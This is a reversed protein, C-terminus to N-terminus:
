WLYPEASRSMNMPFGLSASLDMKFVDEESLLCLLSVVGM